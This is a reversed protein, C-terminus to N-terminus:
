AKAAHICRPVLYTSVRKLSPLCVNTHAVKTSRKSPVVTLKSWPSTPLNLYERRNMNNKVFVSIDIVLIYRSIDINAFLIISLLSYYNNL